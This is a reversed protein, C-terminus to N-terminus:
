LIFTFLSAMRAFANTFILVGMAVIFLGAVIEVQRHWRRLAAMVPGMRPLAAAALLFPVALGVSYAVLLLGAIPASQSSAGMTLIAGLVPGICPSWGLAFLGGLALSRASRSAPLQEPRLGIQFRDLVPGFLGTMLLGLVIVAAGAVQRVAPLAFLAGGLIGVSIGLLTFVLGFATVFLAAQAIIPGRAVSAVVGCGAPTALTTSSATEGLYALYM